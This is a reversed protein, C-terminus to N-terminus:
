DLRIFSFVIKEAKSLPFYGLCLSRASKDQALFKIQVTASVCTGKQLYDRFYSEFLAQKFLTTSANVIGVLM